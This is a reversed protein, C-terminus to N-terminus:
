SELDPESVTEWGRRAALNALRALHDLQESELKIKVGALVQRRAERLTGPWAGVIDRDQSQLTHVYRQSWAQGIQTALEVLEPAVVVVPKEAREVRVNGNAVVPQSEPATDQASSILEVAADEAAVAGIAEATVTVASDVVAAVVVVVAAAM